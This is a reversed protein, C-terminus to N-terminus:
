SKGLFRKQFLCVSDTFFFSEWSGQPLPALREHCRSRLVGLPVARLMCRIVRPIRIRLALSWAGVKQNLLELNPHLTPMLVLGPPISISSTQSGCKSFHLSKPLSDWLSSPNKKRKLTLKLYHAALIMPLWSLMKRVLSLFATWPQIHVNLCDLTLEQSQGEGAPQVQPCWSSEEPDDEDRPPYFPAAPGGIIKFPCDAFRESVRRPAPKYLNEM